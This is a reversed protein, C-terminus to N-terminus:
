ALEEKGAPASPARPHRTVVSYVTLTEAKGKLVVDGVREVRFLDGLHDRSEEFGTALEAVLRLLGDEM